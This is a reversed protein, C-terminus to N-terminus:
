LQKATETYKSHVTKRFKKKLRLFPKEFLQYSCYAVIFTLILEAFITIIRSEFLNTLNFFIIVFGSYIYLGYTYKGFYETIKFIKTKGTYSSLKWSVFILSVFSLSLTINFFPNDPPIYFIGVTSIILLFTWWKIKRKKLFFLYGGLMGIAFNAFHFFVNQYDHWKFMDDIYEYIFYAILLGAIVWKISKKFFPSLLIFLLYFQEEVSISWLFRLPLIFKSHDYNSLFIWFLEPHEPITVSKGLLNFIIPTIILTTILILYYLPFIRLVRRMFFNKKSFENTKEIEKLALFTLLFSSLVFFFDVGLFGFYFKSSVHFLFVMLFALFRLSDIGSIRGTKTNSKIETM